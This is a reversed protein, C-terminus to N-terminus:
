PLPMHFFHRKLRQQLLPPRPSRPWIVPLPFRPMGACGTGDWKSCVAAGDAMVEDEKGLTTLPCRPGPGGSLYVGPGGGDAPSEAEAGGDKGVLPLRLPISYPVGGPGQAIRRPTRHHCLVM